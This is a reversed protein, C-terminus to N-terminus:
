HFLPWREGKGEGPGERDHSPPWPSSQRERDVEGHIGPGPQSEPLHPESDDSCFTSLWRRLGASPSGDNEPDTSASADFHVSDGVVVTQAPSVAIRATPSFNGRPCINTLIPGTSPSSIAYVRHDRSPLYLVANSGFSGIAPSSIIENTTQYSWIPTAAGSATASFAYVGYGLGVYVIGDSGIVPFGAANQSLPVPGYTWKVPHNVSSQAAPNIAYITHQNTFKSVFFLTGANSAAASLAATQDV